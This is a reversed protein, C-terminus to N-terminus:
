KTPKSHSADVAAIFDDLSDFGARKAAENIADEAETTQLHPRSSYARYFGVLDDYKTVEGLRDIWARVAEPSEGKVREAHEELLSRFTETENHGTLGNFKVGLLGEYGAIAKKIDEETKCKQGSANVKARWKALEIREREAKAQDENEAKVAEKKEGSDLWVLFDRGVDETPTKIVARFFAKCRTKTVIMNNDNDMDAVLDFEYELGDRQIPALGVKRPATKGRDNTEMVYESKARMTVIVHGPYQLIADVLRNHLPTVDRWATFTNKSQSRAAANDVLELAGDKGMWAHSLSDIILVGYGGAAADKIAEIFREPHFSAPELVDFDFEDAYKSASGRETDIVAIQGGLGCAIRLASYTKGSGSIGILAIRGKLQSKVAKKFGSM